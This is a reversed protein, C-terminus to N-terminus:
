RLGNIQANCCVKVASRDFEPGNLRDLALDQRFQPWFGPTNNTSGLLSPQRQPKASFHLARTSNNKRLHPEM